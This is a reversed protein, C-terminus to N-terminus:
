LGEVYLNESKPEGVVTGLKAVTAELAAAYKDNHFNYGGFRRGFILSEYPPKRAYGERDRVDFALVPSQGLQTNLGPTPVNSGEMIM